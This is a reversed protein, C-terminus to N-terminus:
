SNYRVPQFSVYGTIVFLPYSLLKTSIDGGLMYNFIRKTSTGEDYDM